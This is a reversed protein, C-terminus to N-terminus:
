TLNFILKIWLPFNKHLFAPMSHNISGNLTLTIFEMSLKNCILSMYIESFQLKQM